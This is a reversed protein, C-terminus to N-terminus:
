RTQGGIPKGYLRYERERRLYDASYTSQQAKEKKRMRTQEESYEKGLASLTMEPIM